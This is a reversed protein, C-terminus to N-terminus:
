VAAPAAAKRESRRQLWSFLASMVFFLLNFTGLTLIVMKFSDHFYQLAIWYGVALAVLVPVPKFYSHANLNNLLVNGLALPVMAAAYLPM